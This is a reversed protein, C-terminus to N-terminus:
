SHVVLNVVILISAIFLSVFILGAVVYILPNSANLDREMNKRKQIGIAGAMISLLASLLSVKKRKDDM